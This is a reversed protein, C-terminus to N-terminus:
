KVVGKWSNDWYKTPVTFPTWKEDSFYQYTEAKTLQKTNRESIYVANNRDLTLDRNIKVEVYDYGGKDNPINYVKKNQLYGPRTFTIKDMADHWDKKDITETRYDSGIQQIYVMVGLLSLGAKTSGTLIKGGAYTLIKYAIKSLPHIQDM